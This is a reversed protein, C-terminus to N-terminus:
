LKLNNKIDNLAAHVVDVCIRCTDENPFSNDDMQKRPHVLNRYDRLIINFDKVDKGIWGCEHTVNILTELTWNKFKLVNMNKDKPASKCMNSEKPNKQVIFLLVGELISGLLIIASLHAGNLSCIEIENWRFELVKILKPDDVLDNFCVKDFHKRNEEKNPITTNISHIYPVNKNLSVEYGEAFLIQNLEEIITKTVDINHYELPNALRLIIMEIKSPDNNYKVLQDLTWTKRTSGDHSSGLGANKFFKSLQSGKRYFKNSYNEDGNYYKQLLSDGCIIDAIEDLTSNDLSRMKMDSTTSNKASDIINQTSEIMDMANEIVNKVM